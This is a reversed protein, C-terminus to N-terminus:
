WVWFQGKLLHCKAKKLNCFRFIGMEFGERWWFLQKTVMHNILVLTVKKILLNCGIDFLYSDFIHVWWFDPKLGRKKGIWCAIVVDKAFDGILRQNPSSWQHHWKRRNNFNYNFYILPEEKSLCATCLWCCLQPLFLWGIMKRKWQNFTPIWNM